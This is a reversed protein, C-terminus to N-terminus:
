LNVWTEDKQLEDVLVERVLPEAFETKVDTVDQDIEVKGVVAHRASHIIEEGIHQPLQVSFDIVQLSQHLQSSSNVEKEGGDGGLM